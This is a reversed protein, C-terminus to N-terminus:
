LSWPRRYEKSLLRDAEPVGTTLKEANWDFAKGSRYSVNGLLVAETLVGSYDFSCTTSGGAKCAEVWEKHHGISRPITRPPPQTGVFDKEPLLQHKDYGAILMGWNGVFLTGDGWKPLKGDAFYTPRKGGDYWTLKVPPREGRAPFEYRVILWPPASDGDVPPGEAAVHTPHRLGLAWFPLDVHHCAMDALTGGGFDWWDRWNFPHYLGNMKKDPGHFFPREPAPGLWLDWHFGEPVPESEKPRKKNGYSRGCWVHVERVPGIAGAQILEVVQRYNEGAHIQTGMQTVRKAKAATERVLRAEQVTHTLPKECYVHLGARLAALTALAHYHDPTAVVVADLGKRDLMKRFDIDYSARPYKERVPGARREDVDCLAVIEAGAKAVNELNYGGQNTVGIVGVQLRDNPGPKKEEARAAGIWFGAAAATSKLFRRRDIRQIM